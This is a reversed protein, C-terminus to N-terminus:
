ASAVRVVSKGAPPAIQGAIMRPVDELTHVKGVPTRIAGREALRRLHEWVSAEQEPDEHPFGLVGVASHGRMMMDGSDLPTTTGSAQGVIAIRGGRALSKVATAGMDGGVPDYILDVGRGGTIGAIRATLDETRHDVVHDAGHRLAFDTKERGGAVGIVTAGLAKGLQLATGGIAGAAGLVLLTQGREVPTREVLGAYATRFGIPFGAAEEDTMGAPIRFAMGEDLYAYDAYGGPGELVAAYGAVQDGVAFRSGPAVAVVEGAAEAGLGFPPEGSFFPYAGSTMWADGHGAGAARVRVLVRGPAPQDWTTEQLRVGEMPDGFKVLLWARGSLM